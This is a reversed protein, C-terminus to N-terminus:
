SKFGLGLLYVEKSRARSAKPKRIVVKNFRQDLTKKYADYGAGQFMKILFKGNPKLVNEAMDLALEALYISRPQDMAKNGSLNPAMDSMVIDVPAQDLIEYLKELVEDERFDGQIFNVGNIPQMDLIDLAIVKNKKGVIKAVYESWGGPAAGLDVVNMGPQIIKDKQQIEMLKFIARSRYGQEQAKKVYEDDFHENM